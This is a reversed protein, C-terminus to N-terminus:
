VNVSGLIARLVARHQAETLAIPEHEQYVALAKVVAWRHLVPNGQRRPGAQAQIREDWERQTEIDQRM